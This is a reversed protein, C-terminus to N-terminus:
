DKSKKKSLTHLYNIFRRVEKREIEGIGNILARYINPTGAYLGDKRQPVITLLISLPEKMTFTTWLPIEESDCTFYVSSETMAIVKVESPALVISAKNTPAFYVKGVEEEKRSLIIKEHLSVALKNIVKIDIEKQHCVINKYELQDRLSESKIDTDFIVFIPNYLELVKIKTIVEKLTDIQDPCLDSYAILQPMETRLDDENDYICSQINLMYSLNKIKSELKRLLDLRKNVILVKIIKPFYAGEHEMVWQQVLLKIDEKRDKYYDREYGEIVKDYSFKPKKMGVFYQKKKKNGAHFHDVYEFKLDCSFKYGYNFLMKDNLNMVKFKKATMVREIPHKDLSIVENQILPSKSEVHFMSDTAHVIRIKQYIETYYEVKSMYYPPEVTLNIDNYAMADFVVDHIEGCKIHNILLGSDLTKTIEEEGIGESHLACISKRKTVGEQSLLRSLKLCSNIETSFDIYLINSDGTFIDDFIELHDFTRNEISTNNFKFNYDPYSSLFRHQLKNWYNIDNGLYTVILKTDSEKNENKM